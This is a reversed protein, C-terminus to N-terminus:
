TGREGSGSRRIGLKDMRWHLTTRKLGLLAAAGKRGSVVWNSRQLADLITRREAEELTEQEGTAASMPQTELDALPVKLVPGASLIVARELLNQLERINGPWQYRVLVNMTESPITDITRNMRRAFQQVFHRVLLLIDERRERLPQCSLSTTRNDGKKRFQM